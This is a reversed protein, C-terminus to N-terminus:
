TLHHNPLISLHGSTEASSGDRRTAPSRMQPRPAEVAKDSKEIVWGGANTDFLLRETYQVHEYVASMALIRRRLLRWTRRRFLLVGLGRWGLDNCCDTQPRGSCGEYQRTM